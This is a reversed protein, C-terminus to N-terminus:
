KKEDKTFIRVQNLIVRKFDHEDRIDEIKVGNISIIQFQPVYKRKKNIEEKAM